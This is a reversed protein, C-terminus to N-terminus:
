QGCSGNRDKKGKGQDVRLIMRVSDIDAIKLRLVEGLRLGAGYYAIEMAVRERLTPETALLRAVEKASMVLPLRQPARQYRVEFKWERPVVSRFLLAIASIAQNM